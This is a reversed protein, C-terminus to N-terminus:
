LIYDLIELVTKAMENKHDILPNVETIELAVIKPSQMLHVLLNKAGKLSLGNPVKTGTGESVSPDLSDVDFSIYILDCDKLYELSESAIQEIPKSKVDEPVYHKMKNDRIDKWEPKELDRIDIFVVDDPEIKPHIKKNGSHLLAKWYQLTEEDPQNITESRYVDGLLAALPMGHVNGSPTTFPSHLDGHADIWIVGLRKVPFHNKVASISGIANSHDGSFILPFKEKNLVEEVNHIISDTVKVISDIHRAYKYKSEFALNGNLSLTRNVPYSNFISGKRQIDALM